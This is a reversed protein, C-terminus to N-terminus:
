PGCLVRRTEEITLDGARVRRAAQEALPSVGQTGAHRRIFSPVCGRAVVDRWADDILHVETLLLRGRYGSQHCVKIKVMEGVPMEFWDRTVPLLRFIEFLAPAATNIGTVNIPPEM